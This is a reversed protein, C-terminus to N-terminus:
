HIPFPIPFAPHSRLAALDDCIGHLFISNPIPPSRPFTPPATGWMAASGCQALSRAPTPSTLHPSIPLPPPRSLVTVLRIQMCVFTCALNIM